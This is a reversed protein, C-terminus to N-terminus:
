SSGVYDCASRGEPMRVLLPFQDPASPSKAAGCTTKRFGGTFHFWNTTDPEKQMKIIPVTQIKGEEHALALMRRLCSLSRNVTATSYGAALQRKAFMRAYDTTLATVPPGDHEATFGVFRDLEKLGGITEAGDVTTYLTANGKETYNSILGARLKGYTIKKLDTPSPAGEDSRGM